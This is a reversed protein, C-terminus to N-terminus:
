ARGIEWCCPLAGIVLGRNGVGEEDAEVLCDRVWDCQVQSVKVVNGGLELYDALHM